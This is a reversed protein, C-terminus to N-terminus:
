RNRRPRVLPRRGRIPRGRRPPAPEENHPNKPRTWMVTLGVLKKKAEEVGAETIGENYRVDIYGLSPLKLMARLADDTIQSNRLDLRRV